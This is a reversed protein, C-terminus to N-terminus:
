QLLEQKIDGIYCKGIIKCNTTNSSNGSFVPTDFNINSMNSYYTTVIPSTTIHYSVSSNSPVLGCFYSYFGEGSGAIYKGKIFISKNLYESNFPIFHTGNMEITIYGEELVDDVNLQTNGFQQNNLMMKM